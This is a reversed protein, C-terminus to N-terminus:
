TPLVERSPLEEPVTVVGEVSSFALCRQAALYGLDGPPSEKVEIFWNKRPYCFKLAPKDAEGM